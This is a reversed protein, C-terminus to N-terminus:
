RVAVGCLSRVEAPLYNIKAGGESSMRRVQRQAAVRATRAFLSM